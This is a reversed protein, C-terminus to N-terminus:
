HGIAPVAGSCQALVGRWRRRPLRRIRVASTSRFYRLDDPMVAVQRRPPLRARQVRRLLLLIGIAVSERLLLRSLM